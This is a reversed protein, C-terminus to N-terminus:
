FFNQFYRILIFKKFLIKVEIKNNIKKNKPKNVFIKKNKYKNIIVEIIENKSNLFKNFFIKLFFLFLYKVNFIM